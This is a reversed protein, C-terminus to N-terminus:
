QKRVTTQPVIGVIKVDQPHQVTVTLGKFKIILGVPHLIVDADGIEQRKAMM